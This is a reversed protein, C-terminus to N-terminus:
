GEVVEFGEKMKAARSTHDLQNFESRTLKKEGQNGGSGNGSKAGSGGGTGKLLNDKYQYAGVIQELGEDFDAPEGPRSKSYILNGTADFAQLKGEVDKFHKGFVSQVVEAPVSMKDTIFKSSRFRSGTQEEYLKGKFEDREKVVPAYEDHVAKIAAAKIEEVKGAEILKADGLNKVTDLAKKAETVNIGEFTKLAAEANEKAVRHNKAETNLETIKTAAAPVDYPIEMDGDIFIPKGDQVEAYTKDGVTVTKLKLAM